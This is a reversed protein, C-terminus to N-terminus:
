CMLLILKVIPIIMSWDCGDDEFTPEYDTRRGDGIQFEDISREQGGLQWIMTSDSLKLNQIEGMMGDMIKNMGGVKLKM